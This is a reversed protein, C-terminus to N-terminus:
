ESKSHSTNQQARRYVWKEVESMTGQTGERGPSLMLFFGAGYYPYVKKSLYDLPVACAQLAQPAEAGRSNM